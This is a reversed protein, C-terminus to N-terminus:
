NVENNNVIKYKNLYLVDCKSRLFTSIAKLPNDVITEGKLNLSTNLLIPLNTKKYFSDILHYFLYNDNKNVIQIRCSNDIHLVGKIKSLYENKCKAIINMYKYSENFKSDLKLYNAVEEAIAGVGIIIVKNNNEVM